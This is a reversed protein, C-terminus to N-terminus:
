ASGEELEDKLKYISTLKHQFNVCAALNQEVVITCDVRTKKSGFRM